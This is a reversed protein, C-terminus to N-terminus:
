WENKLTDLLSERMINVPVKENLWLELAKAGQQVLMETGNYTKLGIGKAKKLLQTEFPRYILDFVIANENLHELLGENISMINTNPHMGVPSANILLSVNDININKISNVNVKVKGNAAKSIVNGTTHATDLNIDYLDISTVGLKILAAGVARSAGGAGIIAANKDKIFAKDEQSFTSIFGYVDTNDGVMKGSPYISVTNVAGVMNAEETINDLFKMVDVKYPITVNFGLFKLASLGKVADELKEPQIELALYVGSIGMECMASNHMVPSLTHKLPYGILGLKIM